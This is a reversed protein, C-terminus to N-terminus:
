SAKKLVLFTNTGANGAKSIIRGQKIVIIKQIEFRRSVLGTIEEFSFEREHQPNVPIHGISNQPTSMVLLGGPKLVREIEKLYLEPDVHEITEFSTVVDFESDSFDMRTVDMARFSLNSQRGYRQRAVVLVKESLDAGCVSLCRDALMSAGFGDGCAIDLVRDTEKIYPLALQYHFSLMDGSRIRKDTIEDRPALYVSRYVERARMLYDDSPLPEVEAFATRYVDNEFMAYKPHVTYPSDERLDKATQRLASISYIDAGLQPPFSDPFKICDREARVADNAMKKVVDTLFFMNLGDVRCFHQTLSFAEHAGLMRKLPSSNYGYYVGISPDVERAVQSLPGDKDFEPAAIVVKSRPFSKRIRRLTWAVVPVGDVQNMCIDRGGSWSRSSAQVIFDVSVDNQIGVSM